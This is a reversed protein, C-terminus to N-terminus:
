SKKSLCLKIIYFCLSVSWLAKSSEESYPRSYYPLSRTRPEWGVCTFIPLMLNEYSIKSTLFWIWMAPDLSSLDLRTVLIIYEAHTPTTKGQSSIMQHGLRLWIEPPSEAFRHYCMEFPPCPVLKRSEFLVLIL